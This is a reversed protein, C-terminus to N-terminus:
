VAMETTRRRKVVDLRHHQSERQSLSGSAPNCAGVDSGLSGFAYAPCSPVREPTENVTLDSTALVTRSFNANSLNAGSFDDGSFVTSSLDAGNLDAGSFNEAPSRPCLCPACGGIV